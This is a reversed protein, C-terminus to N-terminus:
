DKWKHNPNRPMIIWMIIYLWVGVGYVLISLIWVFRVIVPDIKLYEAIGGCVGGLIRDKGSRYLRNELKVPKGKLSKAPAERCCGTGVRVILILYGLLLVVWFIWGLNQNIYFSLESIRSNLISANAIDLAEGLLWFAVTVGLATVIPSVPKYEKPYNESGYTAYSFFLMLIFFIGINLSLFIHLSVLFGIGIQPTIFGLIWIAISLVIIGFISGLLPGFIGFTRKCWDDARCEHDDFRKELKKGISEVEESFHDIREDITPVSKRKAATKKKVTKRAKKPPM